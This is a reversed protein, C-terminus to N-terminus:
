QAQISSAVLARAASESLFAPQGFARANIPPHRAHSSEPMGTSGFTPSHAVSLM